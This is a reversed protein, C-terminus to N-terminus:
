DNEVMIVNTGKKIKFGWDEWLPGATLTITGGDNLYLATQTKGQLKLELAIGDAEQRLSAVIKDEPKETIIKM